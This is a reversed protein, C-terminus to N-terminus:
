NLIIKYNNLYFIYDDNCKSTLKMDITLLNLFIYFEKQFQFFFILRELYFRFVFFSPKNLISDMTWETFALRSKISIIINEFFTFINLNKLTVKCGVIDGAKIKLKVNVKSSKILMTKQLSIVELFIYLFLIKKRHFKITLFSFHLIVEYLFNLLKFTTTEYKTLYLLNKDINNFEINHNLNYLNKCNKYSLIDM